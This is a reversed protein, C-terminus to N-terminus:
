NVNFSRRLANSPKQDKQMIEAKSLPLYGPSQAQILIGDFFRDLEVRTVERDTQLQQELGAITAATLNALM